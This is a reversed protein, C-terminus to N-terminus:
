NLIGWILERLLEGNETSPNDVGKSRLDCSRMLAIIDAIKRAPYNHMAAIYDKAFYPNIKLSRALGQPSKDNSCHALLVKSFFGYLLALTMALPNSKQNKSLYLAIRAAKEGDKRGLANQLEFNNYERSIGAFREVDAPTVPADAPLNTFIKELENEIRSLDKGACEALLMAAAPALPHGRGAGYKVIWDPIKEEYIKKSEFFLSKKALLKGFRKRKDLKKNKYCLVLVTDPRPNQIYPELEEIKRIGQAERVIVVQRAAMVPYRCAAEMIQGADTERGYLVTLNFDREGEALAHTEIYASIKDIFWPEEGSLFYIPSYNG